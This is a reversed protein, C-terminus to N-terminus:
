LVPIDPLDMLLRHHQATEWPGYNGFSNINHEGPLAEIVARFTPALLYTNAGSSTYYNGKDDKKVVTYRAREGPNTTLKLYMYRGDFESFITGDAMDSVLMSETM